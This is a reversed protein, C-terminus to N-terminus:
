DPSKFRRGVHLLCLRRALVPRLGRRCACFVEPLANIQAALAEAEPYDGDTNAANLLKLAQLRVARTPTHALLLTALHYMAEECGWQTINDSKIAARYSEAAAGSNRRVGVGHQYCYGIELLADGDGTKACRSWWRFALVNRGLIRYGAATNNMAIVDGAKAYPRLRAIAAREKEIVNMADDIPIALYSDARARTEVKCRAAEGM